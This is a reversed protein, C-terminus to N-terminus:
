SVNMGDFIILFVRSMNIFTLHWMCGPCKLSFMLIYQRICIIHQDYLYHLNCFPETCIIYYTMSIDSFTMCHTYLICYIKEILINNSYFISIMTNVTWQYITYIYIYSGGFEQNYFHKKRVIPRQHETGGPAFRLTDVDRRSWQPHYASLLNWKHKQFRVWLISTSNMSVWFSAHKKGSFAKKGTWSWFHRKKKLPFAWFFCRNWGDRWSNWAYQWRDPHAMRVWDHPLDSVGEPFESTQGVNPRSRSRSSYPRSHFWRYTTYSPWLTIIIQKIFFLWTRFFQWFMNLFWSTTAKQCVRLYLTYM